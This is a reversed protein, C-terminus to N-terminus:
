VRVWLSQKAEVRAGCNINLLKPAPHAKGVITGCFCCQGGCAHVPLTMMCLGALTMLMPIYLM